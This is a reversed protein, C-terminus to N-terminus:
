LDWCAGGRQARIDERTRSAVGSAGNFLLPVSARRQSVLVLLSAECAHARFAGESPGLLLQSAVGRMISCMDVPTAALRHRLRAERGGPLWTGSDYFMFHYARFKAPALVTFVPQWAWPNMGCSKGLSDDWLIQEQPRRRIPGTIVLYAAGRSPPPPPPTHASASACITSHHCGGAGKRSQAGAIRLPHCKERFQHRAARHIRQACGVLHQSAQRDNHM